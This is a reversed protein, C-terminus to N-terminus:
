SEFRVMRKNKDIPLANNEYFRVECDIADGIKKMMEKTAILEGGVMGCQCQILSGRMESIPSENLKALALLIINEMTSIDENLLTIEVKSLKDIRM